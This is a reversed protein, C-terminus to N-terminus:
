GDQSLRMQAIVDQGAYLLPSLAHRRGYLEDERASAGRLGERTVAVFQTMREGPVPPDAVPSPQPLSDTRRRALAPQPRRGRRADWLLSM